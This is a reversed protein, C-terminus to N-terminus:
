QRRIKTHSRIERLQSLSVDAPWDQYMALINPIGAERAQAIMETEYTVSSLLISDLNLPEIVALPVIPIGSLTGHGGKTVVIAMLQISDPLGWRLMERTHSGAGYIGLRKVNRRQLRLMAHLMRRAMLPNFSPHDVRIRAPEVDIRKAACYERIEIKGNVEECIWDGREPSSPEPKLSHVTFGPLAPWTWNCFLQVGHASAVQDFGSLAIALHVDHLRFILRRRKWQGMCIAHFIRATERLIAEPPASLWSSLQRDVCNQDEAVVCKKEDVLCIREDGQYNGAPVDHFGWNGPNLYPLGFEIDWIGGFHAKETSVLDPATNRFGLEHDLHYVEGIFEVPIGRAEASLYFHWDNARTSFRIREDFGGIREWLERSAMCFDGGAGLYRCPPMRGEGSPLQSSPNQMEIWSLSPDVDIRHARYLKDRSLSGSALRKVLRDSFLIDANTAVVFDGNARRLAANKAPMEYFAMAPNLSYLNHVSAPVVVARARSVRNVFEEALFPRGPLPNWEGLIFEFDIGAASLRETNHDTARFLRERFNSGYDDNRGALVISIM